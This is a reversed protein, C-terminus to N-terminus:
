DGGIAPLHNVYKPPRILSDWATESLNEAREVLNAMANMGFVFTTGEDDWGDLYQTQSFDTDGRFRIKKFGGRRCLAAARDLYDAAQESSTCNGSRNCLYLPSSSIGKNSPFKLAVPSDFITFIKCIGSICSSIVQKEM